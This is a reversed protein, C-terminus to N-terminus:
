LAGDFRPTAKKVVEQSRGNLMATEYFAKVNASVQGTFSILHEKGFAPLNQDMLLAGIVGVPATLNNKDFHAGLFHTSMGRQGDLLRTLIAQKVEPEFVKFQEQIEQTKTTLSSVAEDRYRTEMGPEFTGENNRYLIKCMDFYPKAYIHDLYVGYNGYNEDLGDYSNKVITNYNAAIRSRLTTNDALPTSLAQESFEFAKSFWDIDNRQKISYSDRIRMFYAPEKPDLLKDMLSAIPAIENASVPTDAYLSPNFLMKWEPTDTFERGMVEFTKYKQREYSASLVPRMSKMSHILWNHGSPATESFKKSIKEALIKAQGHGQKKGAYKLSLFNDYLTYINDENKTNRSQFFIDTGHTSVLNRFEDLTGKVIKQQLSNIPVDPNEWYQGLVESMGDRVESSNIQKRWYSFIEVPEGGLIIRNADFGNKMLMDVAEKNRALTLTSNPEAPKPSGLHGDYRGPSRYILPNNSDFGLELYKETLPNVSNILSATIPHLQYRQYWRELTEKAEPLNLTEQALTQYFSNGKISNNLLGWAILRSDEVKTQYTPNDNYTFRNDRQNMTEQASALRDETIDFTTWPNGLSQILKKALARNAQENEDYTNTEQDLTRTNWQRIGGWTLNDFENIFHGWSTKGSLTSQTLDIDPFNEFFVTLIDLQQPKMLRYFMREQASLNNYQQEFQAM